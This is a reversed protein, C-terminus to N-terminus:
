EIIRPVLFMNSEEAPANRLIAETDECPIAKDERFVNKMPIAHTTPAVNDTKLKNLEEAHGLIRSLQDGYLKKEQETLGLRALRAIHEVDIKM